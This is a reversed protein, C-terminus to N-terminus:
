NINLRPGAPGSYDVDKLNTEAIAKAVVVTDKQPTQKRIELQRKVNVQLKKSSKTEPQKATLGKRIKFNTFWM